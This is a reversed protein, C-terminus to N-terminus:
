QHYIVKETSVWNLIIEQEKSLNHCPSLNDREEWYHDRHRSNDLDFGYLHPVIGSLVCAKIFGFGVTPQKKNVKFKNYDAKYLTCSSHTNNARNDWSSNPIVPGFYLIRQHRLRRIFNPNNQTWGSPRGLQQNGFVHINAVTLTRKTGVLSEYGDTIARNFRVVDEMSDIEEGYLTDKLRGSSGVLAVRESLFLDPTIHLLNPM